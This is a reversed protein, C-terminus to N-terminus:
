EDDVFSNALRGFFPAEYHDLTDVLKTLVCSSTQPSATEAPWLSVMETLM